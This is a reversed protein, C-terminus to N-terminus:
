EDEDTEKRGEIRRSLSVEAHSAEGGEGGRGTFGEVAKWFRGCNRTICNPVSPMGM